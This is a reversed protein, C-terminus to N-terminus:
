VYVEWPDFRLATDLRHCPIENRRTREHIWRESMRLYRALEKVTWFSNPAVPGTISGEHARHAANSSINPISLTRGPNQPSSRM